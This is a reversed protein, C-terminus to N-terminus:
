KRLLRSITQLGRLLRNRKVKGARFQSEFGDGYGYGYCTRTVENVILGRVKGLGGLMENHILFAQRGTHCPRVVSLVIDAQKALTLGDAVAPLPPSDIVVYDFQQRLVALAREFNQRNMLEVPNLPLPGAPLMYFDQKPYKEFSPPQATALWDSLGTSSETQVTMNAIAMLADAGDPATRFTKNEMSRRLDADVLIAKRGDDALSRALNLAVETKGDGSTASTILLVCCDPGSQAQYIHDRVFRMSETFPDQSRDMFVGNEPPRRQHAPLLGYVPLKGLRAAEDESQLRGSIAHKGFAFAFGALIGMAAGALVTVDPRPTTPRLPVEAASVVRTDMVTSAKSVNAEEAKQMLLTYLQGYVQSSRTLAIVQLSEAPMSKLKNNFQEIMDDIKTVNASALTLDNAVVNRMSEELKGIAAEQSQVEVMSGTFQVNLAQLQVEDAALTTALQVLVPDNAQSVLYPNVGNAPRSIESQLKKLAECQLAANTREIEYQSLQSIISQANAPVDLIGTQAQYNALKADADALSARVVALQQQVYAETDTASKTKWALQTAIFDNMIQDVFLSAAFPDPGTMSLLALNTPSGPSGGPVIALAGNEVVENALAEASVINLNFVTGAAPPAGAVASKLLLNLGGGSAPAGLRGTLVTADSLAGTRDIEYNANDGVIIKFDEDGAQMEDSTAYLAQVDGSRPGLAQVDHRDNVLWTLYNPATEGRRMVKANLGTELIAQEILNHNSLLGIQTEVDSVTQFNAPMGLGDYSPASTGRSQADGLYLSGAVTFRPVSVIVFLVAGITFMSTIALIRWFHQKLTHVVEASTVPPDRSPLYIPAAQVLSM